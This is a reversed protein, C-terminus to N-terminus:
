SIIPCSSLLHLTASTLTIYRHCIEHGVQIFLQLKMVLTSAYAQSLVFGHSTRIKANISIRVDLPTTPDKHARLAGNVWEKVDFDPDSFRTLDM